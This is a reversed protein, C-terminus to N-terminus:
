HFRLHLPLLRPSLPLTSVARPEPNEDAQDRPLFSSNEHLEIPESHLSLLGTYSTCSVEKHSEHFQRPIELDVQRISPRCSSSSVSSSGVPFLSGISLAQVMFAM